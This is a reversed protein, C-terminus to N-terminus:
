KCIWFLKVNLCTKHGSTALYGTGALLVIFAGGILGLNFLQHVWSLCLLYIAPSLSQLVGATIADQASKTLWKLWQGVRAVSSTLVYLCECYVVYLVAIDAFAQSVEHRACSITGCPELGWSIGKSGAQEYVVLRMVGKYAWYLSITWYWWLHLQMWFCRDEGPMSNYLRWISWNWLFKKNVLTPVLPPM